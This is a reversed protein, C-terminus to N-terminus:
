AAELRQRRVPERAHWWILADTTGRTSNCAVCAAVINLYNFTGGHARPRLHDATATEPRLEGWCYACRWQQMELCRQMVAWQRLKKPILFFRVSM